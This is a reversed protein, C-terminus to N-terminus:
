KLDVNGSTAAVGLPSPPPSLNVQTAPPKCVCVCECVQTTTTRTFLAHLLSLSRTPKGPGYYYFLFYYVNFCKKIFQNKGETTTHRPRTKKHRYPLRTNNIWLALYIDSEAAAAQCIFLQRRAVAIASCLFFWTFLYYSRSRNSFPNKEGRRRKQRRFQFVKKKM